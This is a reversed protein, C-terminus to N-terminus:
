PECARSRPACPTLARALRRDLSQGEETGAHFVGTTVIGLAAVAESCARAATEADPRRADFILGLITGSHAVQIGCGGHRICLRLLPELEPKPLFRQNIRASATAVQGLLRTDGVAVARRAARRLRKFLAIEYENYVAPEFALTDVTSESQTRCGVITIPPLRDGLTELVEGGRYAFLVVRDEIMTSDAAYEAMVALRAVQDASLRVGHCAAVARVTATVDATSSGMGVSQPINTFIEVRGGQAVDLGGLDIMAGRDSALYSLTLAAARHAKPQAAGTIAPQRYRTFVARTRLHPLPITVLARVLAGGSDRFIGQLLEGHHASGYGVGSVTEITTGTRLSIAPMADHLPPHSWRTGIM